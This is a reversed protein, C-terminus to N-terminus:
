IDSRQISAQNVFHKFVRGREFEDTFLNFSAAGPSLLVADHQKASRLTEKVAKAMSSAYTINKHNRLHPSLRKTFSGPLLIVAKAHRRLIDAFRLVESAPFRKDEGGAIVILDGKKKKREKYVTTISFVAARPNTATTDNIFVIGKKRMVVEMRGEPKHFSKLRKGYIRKPIRLYSAIAFAGAFTIPHINWPTTKHHAFRGKDFYAVRAPAKGTFFSNNRDGKPLFLVGSDDQFQFIHAKSKRYSAFDRYRNLHDPFCSTILAVGPSQTVLDLDFSSFEAVIWQPMKKESLVHFFPIGPIGVFTTKYLSKLLHATLAATTTKGKTGTIGIIREKPILTMMIDADNTVPIGAKKALTIISHDLPVAPNKIVLDIGSLNRKGYTKFNWKIHKGRFKKIVDSFAVRPMQELISVRWGLSVFFDLTGLGGGHRGLGFVLVKPIRKTKKHGAFFREKLREEIYEKKYL